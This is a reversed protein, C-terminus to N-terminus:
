GGPPKRLDRIQRELEEVRRRLQTSNSTARIALFVVVGVAILGTGLFMIILLAEALGVM